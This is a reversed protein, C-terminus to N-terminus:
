QQQKRRRGIQRITFHTVYGLMASPTSSGKKGGDSGSKDLCLTLQLAPDYITVKQKQSWVM